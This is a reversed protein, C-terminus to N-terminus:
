HAFAKFVFLYFIKKVGKRFALTVKYTLDKDAIQAFQQDNLKEQFIPFITWSKGSWFLYDAPAVMGEYRTGAAIEIQPGIEGCAVRSSKKNENIFSCESWLISLAAQSKNTLKFQFGDPAADWTIALTEDNFANANEPKLEKGAPTRVVKDLKLFITTKAQLMFCLLVVVMFCLIKKM